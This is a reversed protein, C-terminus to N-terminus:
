RIRIRILHKHQLREQLQEEHTLKAYARGFMELAYKDRFYEIPQTKPKKLLAFILGLPSTRRREDAVAENRAMVAREAGLIPNENAASGALISTSTKTARADYDKRVNADSPLWHSWLLSTAQLGFVFKELTISHLFNM